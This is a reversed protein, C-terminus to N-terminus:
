APPVLQFYREILETNGFFQLPEAPQRQWLFLLLDSAAGRVALDGKAHEHSIVTGDPNFRILWEGPGDTRHFHYSEGNGAIAQKRQRRRIPIIDFSLNLADLALEPDIPEPTIDPQVSQADWRHLSAEAAMQLQWFGVKQRGDGAWSWIPEDPDAESLATELGVTGQEFWEILQPPLPQDAPAKGSTYWNLWEEPLKMTELDESGIGFKPPEQQRKEILGAVRRQVVGLHLLLGIINWDPCAPITSLPPQASHRAAEAFAVSEKHLIALYEAKEM